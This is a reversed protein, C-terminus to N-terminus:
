GVRLYVCSIWILILLDIRIQDMKPLISRINTHGGLIGKPKTESNRIVKAHNVTQFFKLQRQKVTARNLLPGKVRAPNRGQQCKEVTGCLDDYHHNDTAPISYPYICAVSSVGTDIGATRPQEFVVAASAAVLAPHCLM